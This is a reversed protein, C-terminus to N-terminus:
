LCAWWVGRELLGRSLSDSVIAGLLVELNKQKTRALGMRVYQTKKPGLLGLQHLRQSTSLKRWASGKWTAKTLGVQDRDWATANPVKPSIPLTSWISEWGLSWDWGGGYTIHGALSFPVPPRPLPSRHPMPEVASTEEKDNSEHSCEAM